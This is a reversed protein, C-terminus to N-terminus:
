RACTWIQLYMESLAVMQPLVEAVRLDQLEYWTAEGQRLIHSKYFGEGARGEHVVNAVLNYKCKSRDNSTPPICVSLDLDKVPFNVITPNKELFFQNTSFRKVHLVLFSPLRTLTFRRRGTRINDTVFTGNYKQLLDYIPIQPIIVKEMADKFLPAPPLDLALMLYPVTEVLDTSSEKAKGTGAETTVQMEGQFCQTVISPKSRKGGTLEFHLKNVLWSLFEVPDSKSDVSFRKKSEVSVVQMLEHPSVHGKFARPNWLKQVLEAWAQLLRGKMFKTNETNLFFNRIPAVRNLAQIVVNAYDNGKMDNLGVLGPMYESGDLARAWTATGDLQSIEVPTYTPKLVYQIDSLSPDSVEYQDPLCYVQGTSLKMFMHHGEELAHTHAHTNPGRGQYYKGCVLCVYVNVPSLSISCCKEFDFDLNRRSITDLYPCEHGSRVAKSQKFTALLPRDDDSNSHSAVTGEPKNSICRAVKSEPLDQDSHALCEENERTRKM